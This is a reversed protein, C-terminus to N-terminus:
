FLSSQHVADIQKARKTKRKPIPPVAPNSSGNVSYKINVNGSPAKVDKINDEDYYHVAMGFIEDDAFAVKGSKKVSNLIYSICEKISKKPNELKLAFSEDGRAFEVLHNQVIEEFQKSVQM